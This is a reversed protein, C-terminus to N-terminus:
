HKKEGRGNWPVDHLRFMLGSTGRSSLVCLGGVCHWVWGVRVAVRGCGVLCMREMGMWRLEVEM